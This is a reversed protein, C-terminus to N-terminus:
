VLNDVLTATAPPALSIPGVSDDRLDNGSIRVNQWDFTTAGDLYSQVGWAQPHTVWQSFCRNGSILLNRM